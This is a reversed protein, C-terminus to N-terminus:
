PNEEGLNVKKIDIMKENSEEYKLREEQLRQLKSNFIEKYTDNLISWNEFLDNAMKTWLYAFLPNENRELLDSIGNAKSLFYDKEIETRSFFSGRTISEEIKESLQIFEQQIEILVGRSAIEENYDDLMNGAMEEVKDEYNIRNKIQDLIKEFEESLLEIVRKNFGLSELEEEIIQDYKEVKNQKQAEEYGEILIYASTIKILSNLFRNQDVLGSVEIDLEDLDLDKNEIKQVVEELGELANLDIESKEHAQSILVTLSGRGVQLFTTLTETRSKSIEEDEEVYDVLNDIEKSIIKNSDREALFIVHYKLVFLSKEPQQLNLKELEEYVEDTEDADVIQNLHYEAMVLPMFSSIIPREEDKLAKKSYYNIANRHIEEPNQNEQYLLEKLKSHLKYSQFGDVRRPGTKEIIKRKNLDKLERRVDTPNKNLISACIKADFEFLPSIKKLNKEEEADLSDLFKEELFEYIDSEPLEGEEIEDRSKEYLDLMRPYGETKEYIEELEADSIELGREEFFSKTEKRSFAEIAFQQIQTELRITGASVIKLNESLDDLTKLFDSLEAIDTSLSEIDDLFVTREKGDNAKDALEHKLSKSPIKRSGGAGAFQFSKIDGILEKARELGEKDKTVQWLISEIVDQFGDLSSARVQFSSDTEITNDVDKLIESKGIGPKGHIHIPSEGDDVKKSIKKAKNRSISM